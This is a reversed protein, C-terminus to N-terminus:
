SDVKAYFDEDAQQFATRAMLKETYANLTPQNKLMGLKFAWVLVGGVIIDAVTFQNDVLYDQNKVAATIPASVRDFWEQAEPASCEQHVTKPLLKEPLNPLLNFMFKEVPQELTTVAYFLWQYYYARAPTGPAPALRKEPYQDVLYNCIAASEFITVDGDILVPVKGHPHLKQYESERMMAMTPRVLEYPIAMEELCWRPRVARTTPIYYLKM